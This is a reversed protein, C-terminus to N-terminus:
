SLCLSVRSYDTYEHSVFFTASLPCGDPRERKYLMKRYLATNLQTIADDFTLMVFQPTEERSLGGPIDTGSCRCDPLQCLDRNCPQAKQASVEDRPACLCVSITTLSFVVFILSIKQNM